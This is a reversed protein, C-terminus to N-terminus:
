SSLGQFPLHTLSQSLFPRATSAVPLAQLEACVRGRGMPVAMFCPSSCGKGTAQGVTMVPDGVWGDEGWYSLLVSAVPSGRQVDSVGRTVPRLPIIM